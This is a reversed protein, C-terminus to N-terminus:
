EQKKLLIHSMTRILWQGFEKSPTGVISPNVPNRRGRIKLAPQRHLVVMNEVGPFDATVESLMIGDAPAASCLRSALNVTDGV